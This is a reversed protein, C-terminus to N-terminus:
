VGTRRRVHPPLGMRGVCRTDEQCLQLLRRHRLGHPKGAVGPLASRAARRGARRGGDDAGPRLLRYPLARAIAPGGAEILDTVLGCHGLSGDETALRVDVGSARFDDVCALYERTRVGYCLTATEARPVSRAPEGFTRLGLYERALMLLPTQGIGGAVMVLHGTPMPPFGNGLPGWVELRSGPRLEALLRSMKGVVRYVLDLSQPRGDAGAVVDYVALARGLLPDNCDSLRLM